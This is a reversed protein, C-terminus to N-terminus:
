PKLIEGVDAKNKYNSIRGEFWRAMQLKLDPDSQIARLLNIAGLLDRDLWDNIKKLDVDDMEPAHGAGQAKVGNGNLKEM